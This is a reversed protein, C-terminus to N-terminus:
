TKHLTHPKTQFEKKKNKALPNEIAGTGNTSLATQGEEM